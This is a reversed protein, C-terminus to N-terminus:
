ERLKKTPRRQIKECSDMDKGHGLIGTWGAPSLPGSSAASIEPHEGITTITGTAAPALIHNRWQGTRLGHFVM